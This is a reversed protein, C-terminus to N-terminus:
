GLKRALAEDVKAILDQSRSITERSRLVTDQLDHQLRQLDLRSKLISARITERESPFHLPQDPLAACVQKAYVADGRGVAGVRDFHRVRRLGCHDHCLQGMSLWARDGGSLSAYCDRYAYNTGRPKTGKACICVRLSARRIAALTAFSGSNPWVYGLGARIDAKPPLASMLRLHGSTRKQGLASM